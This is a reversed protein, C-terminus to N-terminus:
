SRWWPRPSSPPPLGGAAKREETEIGRALGRDAGDGRVEVLFLRHLRLVRASGGISLRQRDLGRGAERLLPAGGPRLRLTGDYNMGMVERFTELPVREFYGERLIGASNVLLRPPGLAEAVEAMVREVEAYDAVDCSFTLVERDRGAAELVEGRASWGAQDRAVLALRSGAGALRRALAKGLGSSGGTIVM